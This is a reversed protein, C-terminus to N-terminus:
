FRYDKSVYFQVEEFAVMLPCLLVRPMLRRWSTM